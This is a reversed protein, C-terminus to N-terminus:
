RAPITQRTAAVLRVMVTGHSKRSATFARESVRLPMEDADQRQHRADRHGLPDEARQRARDDEVDSAVDLVVEAVVEERVELLERERVILLVLRAVQHRPQHVVHAGDPHEEAGADEVEDVRGDVVDVAERDHERDV